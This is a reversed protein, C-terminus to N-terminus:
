CCGPGTPFHVPPPAPKCDTDPADSRLRYGTRFHWGSFVKCKMPAHSKWIIGAHPSKIMGACLRNYVSSTSYRNSADCPWAFEDEREVSWPAHLIVGHLHILQMHAMYFLPGQIDEVWDGTLMGQAVTRTNNKRTSVMDVILPAIDRPSIGLDMLGTLVVGEVM